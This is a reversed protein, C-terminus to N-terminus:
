NFHPLFNRLKLLFCAGFYYCRASGSASSNIQRHYQSQHFLFKNQHLLLLRQTKIGKCAMDAVLSTTGVMASLLTTALYLSAASIALLLFLAHIHMGIVQPILSKNHNHNVSTRSLTMLSQTSPALTISIQTAPSSAM